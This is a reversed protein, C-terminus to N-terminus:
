RGRFAKILTHVIIGLPVVALLGGVVTFKGVGAYKLSWRVMMVGSASLVAMGLLCLSLSVTRMFPSPKQGHGSHIM